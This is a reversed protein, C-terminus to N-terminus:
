GHENIKELRKKLAAIEERRKVENDGPLYQKLSIFRM